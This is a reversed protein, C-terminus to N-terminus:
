QLSRCICVSVPGHTATQNDMIIHRAVAQRVPKRIILFELDSGSANADVPTGFVLVPVYQGKDRTACEFEECTLQFQHTAKDEWRSCTALVKVKYEISPEVCEQTSCAVSNSVIMLIHRTVPCHDVKGLVYSWNADHMFQTYNYLLCQVVNLILTMCEIFVDLVKM